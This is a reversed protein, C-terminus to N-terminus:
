KVIEQKVGMLIYGMNLVKNPLLTAGTKPFLRACHDLTLWLLHLLHKHPPPPTIWDVMLKGSSHGGFRQTSRALIKCEKNTIRQAFTTFSLSLFILERHLSDM